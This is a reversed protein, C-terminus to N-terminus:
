TMGYFESRLVFLQGLPQVVADLHRAGMLVPVLVCLATSTGMGSVDLVKASRWM